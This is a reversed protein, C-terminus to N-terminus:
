SVAQYPIFQKHLPMNNHAEGNLGDAQGDDTYMWNTGQPHNYAKGGGGAGGVVDGMCHKHRPIQAKTLTHEDAGGTTGPSNTYRVHYGICDSTGNNGNAKYWTRGLFELPGEGLDVLLGIVMGIPASLTKHHSHGPELM